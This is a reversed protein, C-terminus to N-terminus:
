PGHPEAGTLLLQHVDLGLDVLVALQGPEALQASLEQHLVGVSM